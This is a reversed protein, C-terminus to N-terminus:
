VEVIMDDDDDNAVLGESALEVAVVGEDKRTAETEDRQLLNVLREIHESVNDNSEEEHAARVIQYTGAGRLQERGWYTTCLLLLTEVLTLRLVADRERSKSPPLFQLTPHLLEQDELDFEEPGALPLLISPLINIGPATTESPPVAVQTHDTSLLAKHASSYFACNKITSIVGGRRIVDKHETFPTLKALPYEPGLPGFIRSDV